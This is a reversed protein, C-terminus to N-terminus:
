PDLDMQRPLQTLRLQTGQEKRQLLEQLTRDGQTWYRLFAGSRRMQEEHEEGVVQLTWGQARLKKASRDINANFSGELDRVQAEGKGGLAPGATPGDGGVQLGAVTVWVSLGGEGPQLFFSEQREADLDVASLFLGGDKTEQQSGLLERRQWRAAIRAAVLAQEGKALWLYGSNLSRGIADSSSGAPMWQGLFGEPLGPVGARPAMAPASSPLSAWVLPASVALGVLMSGVLLKLPFM